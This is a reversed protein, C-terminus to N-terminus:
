AREIRGLDRLLGVTGDSDQVVFEYGRDELALIWEGPELVFANRGTAENVATRRDPVAFWFAQQRGSDQGSSTATFSMEDEAATSGSGPDAADPASDAGTGTATAPMASTATSPVASTAPESTDATAGEGASTTDTAGETTTDAAASAEAANATGTTTTADDTATAEADSEAADRTAEDPATDPAQADSGDEGHGSDAGSRATAAAAAPEAAVPEETAEPRPWSGPAPEPTASHTAALGAAVTAHAEAGSATHGHGAAPTHGHGAAGPTGASPMPDPAGHSPATGRRESPRIPRTLLAGEGPVFDLVFGPIYPAAATGASMVLSGLLGLLFAPNMSMVSSIFFYLIGLLSVVSALQDLTLSGATVRTRGSLRRWAFAAGLVLPLALTVFQNFATTHFTWVNAYSGKGIEFPLVSGILLLVAGAMVVIERLTFPGALAPATDSRDASSTAM